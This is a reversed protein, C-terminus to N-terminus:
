CLGECQVERFTEGDRAQSLSTTMELLGRTSMRRETVSNWNHTNRKHLQWVTVEQNFFKYIFNCYYM